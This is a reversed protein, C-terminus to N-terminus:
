GKEEEQGRVSCQGHTSMMSNREREIWCAWPNLCVVQSCQDEMDGGYNLFIPAVTLETIIGTDVKRLLLRINQPWCPIAVISPYSCWPPHWAQPM